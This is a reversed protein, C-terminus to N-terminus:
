GCEAEHDRGVEADYWDKLSLGTSREYIGDYSIPCMVIAYGM